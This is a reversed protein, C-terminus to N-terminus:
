CGPALAAGLSCELSVRVGRLLGGGVREAWGVSYCVRGVSYGMPRRQLGDASVTVGIVCGVSVIVCGVSATVWRGVSYRRYCM